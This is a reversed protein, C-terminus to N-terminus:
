LASEPTKRGDIVGPHLKGLYSEKLKKISVENKCRKKIMEYAAVILEQREHSLDGRLEKIFTIYDMKGTCNKDYVRFAEDVEGSPLNIKLDKFVKRFNLLLISGENSKDYEKFAKLLIL